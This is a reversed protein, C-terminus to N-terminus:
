VGAQFSSLRYQWLLYWISISAVGQLSTSSHTLPSSSFHSFFFNVWIMTMKISPNALMKDALYALQDLASFLSFTIVDAFFCRILSLILTHVISSRNITDHNTNTNGSSENRQHPDQKRKKGSKAGRRGCVEKVKIAFFFSNCFEVTSTSKM